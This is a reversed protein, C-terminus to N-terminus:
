LVGIKGLHHKMHTLYDYKKSWRNAGTRVATETESISRLREAASEVTQMLEDTIHTM